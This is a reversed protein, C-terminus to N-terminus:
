QKESKKLGARLQPLLVLVPALALALVLLVSDSSQTGFLMLLRSGLRERGVTKVTPLATLRGQRWQPLVSSKCIDERMAYTAGATGPFRACELISYPVHM